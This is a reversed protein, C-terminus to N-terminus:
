ADDNLIDYVDRNDMSYSDGNKQSREFKKKFTFAHAKLTSKKMSPLYTAVADWNRGYKRIAMLFTQHEEPTWSAM